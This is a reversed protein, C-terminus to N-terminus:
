ASAPEAGIAYDIAREAILDSANYVPLSSASPSIVLPAESCGLIIGECERDRYADIVAQVIARSEDRITGYVLESFIIRDLRDADDESPRVLKIGKMGLDTQYASGTTVFRTGIVGVTRRGDRILAEAVADTMKLWPIPSGADALQVAHQVANDPSFCFHAGISALKQASDRLMQGVGRWDDERIAAVYHALPMNHVSITPHQEPPLRLSAHRSVQRYCLSAGEPSVGVIGIHKSM